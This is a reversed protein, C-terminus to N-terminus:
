FPPDGDQGGAPPCGGARGAYVRGATAGAPTNAPAPGIDWPSGAGPGTAPQAPQRPQEGQGQAQGQTPSTHTARTIRTTAWRLSAGVEEADVEIATRTSSDEATWSSQRLRGTVIVRTGRQLSEAVHEGLQRWAAVRLFVTTGDTWKNAQKDFVRPTSAVTFSAVAVGATTFRLEPDATLNGAVCITPDM